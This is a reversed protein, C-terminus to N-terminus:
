FFSSLNRLAWKQLKHKSPEFSIHLCLMQRKPRPITESVFIISWKLTNRLPQQHLIPVDSTSTTQARHSLQPCRYLRHKFKQLTHSVPPVLLWLKSKTVKNYFNGKIQCCHKNRHILYNRVIEEVFWIQVWFRGWSPLSFAHSQQHIMLQLVLLDVQLAIFLGSRKYVMSTSERHRMNRMQSTSHCHKEKKM